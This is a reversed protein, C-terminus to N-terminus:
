ALFAPGNMAGEIVFPAVMQDHRLGAIFTVTKWHGRPAYDVLRDGRPRRGRTRVLSATIATEHLLVLATSDLLRQQRFWRRRAGAVDPRNQM